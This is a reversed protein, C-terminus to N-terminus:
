GPIRRIFGERTLEIRDGISLGTSPTDVYQMSGDDMRIGLRQMPSAATGGASATPAAGMTEIRGMGPKLAVSQVIPAPAAGQPVTVVPTSPPVVVIPNPQRSGCAALLAVAAVSLPVFLFKSMLVEKPETSSKRVLGYCDANRRQRQSLSLAPIRRLGMIGIPM